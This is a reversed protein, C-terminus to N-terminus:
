SIKAFQLLTAPFTIPQHGDRDAPKINERADNSKRMIRSSRTISSTSATQLTLGCGAFSRQFLAM